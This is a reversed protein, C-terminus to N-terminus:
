IKDAFVRESRRFYIIGTILLAFTLGLSLLFGPIYFSIDQGIISWRFGDIVGVLPNISYIFRWKIPVVDSSFGVPSACLSLQVIFAVIYRFDRYKVNLTAFTIGAGFTFVLVILLFLPMSVIRWSPIFKYWVMIICLIVFSIVFDGLAVITSSALLIIRPFYIKTKKNANSVLSNSSETLASSFFKWPLLATLVLIPYPIGSSPFKAINEFIITFVVM